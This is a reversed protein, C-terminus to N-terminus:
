MEKWILAVFLADGIMATYKLSMWRAPLIKRARFRAEPRLTVNHPLSLKPAGAAKACSEIGFRVM